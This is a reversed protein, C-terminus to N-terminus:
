RRSKIVKYNCADQRQGSAGMAAFTVAIGDGAGICGRAKADHGQRPAKARKGARGGQSNRKTRFGELPARYFDVPGGRPGVDFRLSGAM